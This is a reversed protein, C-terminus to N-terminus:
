RGIIEAVIGETKARLSRVSGSKRSLESIIPNALKRDNMVKLNVRVNLFAAFFAAEFLGAAVGVDSILNTNCRKALVPCLKIGEFCLRAVMFPVDLADNYNGSDYAVVDLDMLRLFETRLSESEKLAENLWCEYKRYREKGLTFNITMGLLAAAMAASLAASSGGGPVPSKASLDDLYKKISAKKYERM